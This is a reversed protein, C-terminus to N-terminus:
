AAKREWLSIFQLSNTAWGLPGTHCSAPHILERRVFGADELVPSWEWRQQYLYLSPIGFKRNGLEDLVALALKGPLHRYTHDKLLFFRRSCRVAEALSAKPDPCHHLVDISTVLDFSQDPFPVRTGDYLTVPVHTNPRAQVDIPTVEKVLGAQQLSWAFWGDGGGFDLSRDLAAYPQLVTRFLEFIRRRYPNM